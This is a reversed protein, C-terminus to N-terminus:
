TYQQSLTTEVFWHEFRNQSFKHFNEQIFSLTPAIPGTGLRLYMIHANAPDHLFAVPIVENHLSEFNIQVSRSGLVKNPSLSSLYSAPLLGCAIVLTKSFPKKTCKRSMWM